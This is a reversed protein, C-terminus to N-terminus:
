NSVVIPGLPAAALVALDATVLASSAVAPLVMIPLALASAILLVSVCAVQPIQEVLFMWEGTYLKQM